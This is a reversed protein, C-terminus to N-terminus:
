GVGSPGGASWGLWDEATVVIAPGSPPRSEYQPYKRALAEAVADRESGEEVVRASGRIRVWWLASWDDEYHDVLLTVLPNARINVLRQLEPGRKPKHDVASVIEDGTLAFVVPVLHPRGAPDVSALRAMPAPGVRRRM